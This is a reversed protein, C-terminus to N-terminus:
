TRKRPRPTPRQTPQQLEHRGLCSSELREIRAALNNLRFTFHEKQLVAQSGRYRDEGAMGVDAGITSLTKEVQDQKGAVSVLELYLATIMTM